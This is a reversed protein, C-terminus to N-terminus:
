PGILSRSISQLPVAKLKECNRQGSAGGCGALNQGLLGIGGRVKKLATEGLGNTADTGLDRIVVKTKMRKAKEAPM